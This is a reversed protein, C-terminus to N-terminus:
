LRRSIGLQRSQLFPSMSREYAQHPHSGRQTGAFSFFSDSVFVPALYPEPRSALM